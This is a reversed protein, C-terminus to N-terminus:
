FRFIKLDFNKKKTVKILKVFATFIHWCCGTGSPNNFNRKKSDYFPFNKSKFSNESKSQKKLKQM